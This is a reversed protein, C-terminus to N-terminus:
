GNFPEIPTDVVPPQSASGLVRCAEDVSVLTDHEGLDRAAPGQFARRVM